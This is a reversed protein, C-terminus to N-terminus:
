REGPKLSGPKSCKRSPKVGRVTTIERDCGTRRMSGHLVQPSVCPKTLIKMWGLLVSHLKVDCSVISTLSAPGTVNALGHTGPLSLAGVPMREVTQHAGSMPTFQHPSLGRHLFV